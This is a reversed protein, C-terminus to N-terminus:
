IRRSSTLHLPLSSEIASQALDSQSTFSQVWSSSAPTNHKSSSAVSLAAVVVADYSSVVDIESDVKVPDPKDVCCLSVVLLVM